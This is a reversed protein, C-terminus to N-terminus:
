VDHKLYVNLRLSSATGKFDEKLKALDSRVASTVHKPEIENFLPLHDRKLMPNDLLMSDTVTMKLNSAYTTAKSRVSSLFSGSLLGVSRVAFARTLISMNAFCLAILSFSPRSKM